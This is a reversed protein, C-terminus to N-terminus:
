QLALYRNAPCFAGAAHASTCSPATHVALINQALFLGGLDKRFAGPRAFERGAARSPAVHRRHNRHLGSLVGLHFGPDPGHGSLMLSFSRDTTNLIRDQAAALGSLGSQIGEPPSFHCLPPDTGFRIQPLWVIFDFREVGCCDAGCRGNM